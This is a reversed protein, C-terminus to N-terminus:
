LVGVRLMLSVTGITSFFSPCSSSSIFKRMKWIPCYPTCGTDYMSVLCVMQDYMSVTYLAELVSLDFNDWLPYM